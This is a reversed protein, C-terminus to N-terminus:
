KVGKKGGGEERKEKSGEKGKRREEERGEEVEGDEGRRKRRERRRWGERGKLENIYTMVAKKTQHIIVTFHTLVDTERIVVKSLFNLAFKVIFILKHHCNDAGHILFSRDM